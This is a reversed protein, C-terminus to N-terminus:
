ESALSPEDVHLEAGAAATRTTPVENGERRQLDVSHWVHNFNPDRTPACTYRYGVLLPGFPDMYLTVM